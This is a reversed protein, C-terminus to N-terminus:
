GRCAASHAWPLCISCLCPSVEPVLKNYAARTRHYRDRNVVMRVVAQAAAFSRVEYERRVDELHNGLWGRMLVLPKM